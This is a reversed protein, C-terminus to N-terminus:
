RRTSTSLNRVVNGPFIPALPGEDFKIMFSFMQAPVGNEQTMFDICVVHTVPDVLDSKKHKKVPINGLACARAGYIKKAVKSPGAPVTVSAVTVAAPHGAITYLRPAQVVTPDGYQKLQILIRDRTFSGLEIASNLTEPCTSDITSLAFSSTDAPTVSSASLTSKICRSADTPAASSEPPAPVFEASYFYTINQADDHFSKITDSKAQGTAHPSAVEWLLLLLLGLSTLRFVTIQVSASLGSM